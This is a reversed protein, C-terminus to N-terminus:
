AAVNWFLNVKSKDVNEQIVKWAKADYEPASPFPPEEGKKVPKDYKYACEHLTARGLQREDLKHGTQIAHIEADPFALQLGRNLTGSSAVTWIVDPKLPLSQAVKVISGLVWDHELGLPLTKRTQPSERRYREARSLTVNLMGMKVWEIRGGYDLYKQQHWTPEKREAWFCTAKKGYKQCVYALSIPGWGVKNSGGFVWEECDTDRILKDIFRMKSGAELLDDRVVHVGDHEEIVPAPYPDEWDKVLELYDEATIM